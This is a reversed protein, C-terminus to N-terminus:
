WPDDSYKFGKNELGERMLWASSVTWNMPKESFKQGFKETINTALDEAEKKSISLHSLHGQKDPHQDILTYFVMPTVKFLTEDTFDLSATIKPIQASLAGYDIGPKPGGAFKTLLEILVAHADIEEKYLTAVTNPVDTFPAPLHMGKMAEIDAGLELQVRTSYRIGDFVVNADAQKSEALAGDRLDQIAGLERTYETALTLASNERARVLSCALSLAVFLAFQELRQTM